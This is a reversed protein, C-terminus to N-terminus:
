SRPTAYTSISFSGKGISLSDSQHSLTWLRLGPEHTLDSIDHCPILRARVQDETPDPINHQTILRVRLDDCIHIKHHDWLVAPETPNCHLLITTFLTRLQTGTQM